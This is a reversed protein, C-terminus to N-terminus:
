ARRRGPATFRGALFAGVLAGAAAVGVAIVYPRVREKLRGTFGEVFPDLVPNVVRDMWPSPPAPKASVAARTAKAATAWAQDAAWRGRERLYGRIKPDGTVTAVADVLWDPQGFHAAAGDRLVVAHADIARSYTM